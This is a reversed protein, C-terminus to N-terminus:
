LIMKDGLVNKIINEYEVIQEKKPVATKEGFLNFIKTENTTIIKLKKGFTKNIIQISKLDSYSISYNKKSLNLIDEISKDTIEKQREKRNNLTILSYFIQGILCLFVSLFNIWASWSGTKAFVIRSQTFILDFYIISSGGYGTHIVGVKTEKLEM